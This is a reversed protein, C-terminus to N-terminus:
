LSSSFNLLKKTSSLSTCLIFFLLFFDTYIQTKAKAFGRLGREIKLAIWNRAVIFIFLIQVKIKQSL